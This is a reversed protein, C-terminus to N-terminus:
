LSRTSTRSLSGSRGTPAPSTSYTAASAAGRAPRGDPPSWARGAAAFRPTMRSPTSGSVNAGAVLAMRTGVFPGDQDVADRVATFGEGKRIPFERGNSCYSFRDRLRWAVPASWSTIEGRGHSADVNAPASYYALTVKPGDVTVICYGVANREQALPLESASFHGNPAYFKCICSGTIVQQVGFARGMGPLTIASRHYIHDHGCLYLRVGNECLVRLFAQRDAQVAPSGFLTDAHNQGLIGKHGFVFAHRGERRAQALQESIWPLQEAIAYTKDGAAGAPVTLLDLLVFTAGACTFAYSRGALGPLSPSSGRSFGDRAEFGITGPLGPFAVNFRAAADASAEHNGRLPFFRVGAAGLGGTHWARIDLEDLTGAGANETLDGVQIVFRVGAAVFQQNVADIIETAVGKGPHNEAPAWQTDSMVGFSWPEADAHGGALATILAALLAALWRCAPRNM